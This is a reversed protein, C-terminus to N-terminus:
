IEIEERYSLGRTEINGYRPPRDGAIEITVIHTEVETTQARRIVFLEPDSAFWSALAESSRARCLRARSRHRPVPRRGVIFPLRKKPHM